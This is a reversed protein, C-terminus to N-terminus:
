TLDAIDDFLSVEGPATKRIVTPGTVPGFRAENAAWTCRREIIPHYDDTLEIGITHRQELLAAALTTGSGAFPDLVTGDPPTVLRVLWRMLDLPKVTPHNNRNSAPANPDLGGGIGAGYRHVEREALDDLGADREARDPKPVYRFSTLDDDTLDARYFFRSAGGEGGYGHVPAKATRIHYSTAAYTLGDSPRNRNVAVGDRSIGSQRDLETAADRDLVVNAPWRGLTSGTTYPDVVPQTEGIRGTMYSSSNHRTTTDDTGVRCGDINLAGTGHALVNAAVTGALPKRAVVIPEHAPKLATGWGEWREAEPTAPATIDYDGGQGDTGEAHWNYRGGGNSVIGKGRGVVERRAWNEGPQGKRGNLDWLLRRVDEPVEDDAVGLVELLTPVQELTPVSPQSAASTWHGAMGAFGFAADIDRNTIGAADRASRVWATVKYVDARDDRQKDIAKSVDLSKPFGSGYLWHISDRIEFGADEIACAMRHYTRTGGFALLHGGPKLVRLVEAWLDVDYAVGSADWTKGMFGLEYPPDTVVSDISEDDLNGLAVRCDGHFLRWRERSM